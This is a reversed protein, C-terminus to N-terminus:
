FRMGSLIKAILNEDKTSLIEGEQIGNLHAIDEDSIATAGLQAPDVPARGAERDRLSDGVRLASM